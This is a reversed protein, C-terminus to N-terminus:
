SWGCEKSEGCSIGEEVTFPVFIKPIDSAVNIKDHQDVYLLLTKTYIKVFNM